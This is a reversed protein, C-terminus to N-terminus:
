GAPVIIVGNELNKYPSNIATMNTFIYWDNVIKGVVEWDASLSKYYMADSSMVFTPVATINFKKIIAKGQTSNIDVLTQNIIFVGYGQLIRRHLMVNYCLSCTSDNLYIVDVLGLIKGTSIDEFPARIAQLAYNGNKHTVNLAPLASIFFTYNEIEKSFILAPLTEIDYEQALNKGEDSSYDISVDKAIQVGANRLSNIVPDMSFCQTCSPDILRTITVSQLQATANQTSNYKATASRYKDTCFQIETANKANGICCQQSSIIQNLTAGQLQESTLENCNANNGSKNGLVLISAFAVAVLAVFIIIIIKDNSLKM